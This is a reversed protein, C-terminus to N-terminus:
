RVEFLEKPMVGTVSLTGKPTRFLRASIRAKKQRVVVEKGTISLPPAITVPNGSPSFSAAANGIITNAIECVASEALEAYSEEDLDGCGFGAVLHAILAAEYSVVFMVSASGGAAIIATQDLVAIQGSSQDLPKTQVELQAEQLYSAARTFIPDMISEVSEIQKQM